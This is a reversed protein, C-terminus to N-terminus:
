CVLHHHGSSPAPSVPIISSWTVGGDTSYSSVIRNAYAGAFETYVTYCRGYYSSGPEGDTASFNKDASTTAGPFTVTASWTSGYNTSYAAGMSGTSTIYSILMRNTYMIMPAPDGYNFNTTDDGFWTVGGDTTVYHGCSFTTLGGVNYTNASAFM